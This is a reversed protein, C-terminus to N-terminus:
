VTLLKDKCAKYSDIHPMSIYIFYLKNKQTPNVTYVHIHTDYTNLMRNLILEM